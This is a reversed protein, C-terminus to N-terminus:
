EWVADVSFEGLVQKLLRDGNTVMHEPLTVRPAPRGAADPLIREYDEV